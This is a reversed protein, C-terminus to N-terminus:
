EVNKLKNYIIYACLAVITAIFIIYIAINNDHKEDHTHAHDDETSHEHDDHDHEEKLHLGEEDNIEYMNSEYKYQNLTDITISTDDNFIVIISAPDINSQSINKINNYNYLGSTYSNLVLLYNDTVTVFISDLLKDGEIDINYTYETERLINENPFYEDFLGHLECANINSLLCIFCIISVVIKKM